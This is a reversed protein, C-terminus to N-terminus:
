GLKVYKQLQLLSSSSLLLDLPFIPDPSLISITYSEDDDLMGVIILEEVKLSMKVPPIIKQM